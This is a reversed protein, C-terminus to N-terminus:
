LAAGALGKYGLLRPLWLVIDPVFTILLLAALMMPMRWLQLLRARHDLMWTGLSFHLLNAVLFLMVAAPLAAEGFALVALPLGMNGCNNFMMPPLFTKPAIGLLRALAVDRFLIHGPGEAGALMGAAMFLVLSSIGLNPALRTALIGFLLLCGLLLLLYDPGVIM